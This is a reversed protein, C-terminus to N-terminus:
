RSAGARRHVDVVRLANERVVKFFPIFRSPPHGAVRQASVVQPQLFFVGWLGYILSPVAALVDVLSTLPRRLRRPAYETIFLATAISVPVAIVLAIM